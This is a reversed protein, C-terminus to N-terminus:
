NILKKINYREDLMLLVLLECLHTKLTTLNFNINIKSAPTTHALKVIGNEGNNKQLNVNEFGNVANKFAHISAFFKIPLIM